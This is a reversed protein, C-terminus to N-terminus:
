GPKCFKRQMDDILRLNLLQEVKDLRQHLKALSRHIEILQLNVQRQAQASDKGNWSLLSFVDSSV